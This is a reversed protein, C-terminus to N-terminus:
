YVTDLKSVAERSDLQNENENGMATPGVGHMDM